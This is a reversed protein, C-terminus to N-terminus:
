EATSVTRWVSVAISLVIIAILVAGAAVNGSLNHALVALGIAILAGLFVIADEALFDYAWLIPALIRRM